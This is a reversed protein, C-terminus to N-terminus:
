FTENVKRRREQHNNYVKERMYYILNGLPSSVEQINKYENKDTIDGPSRGYSEFITKNGTDDKIYHRIDDKPKLNELENVKLGTYMGNCINKSVIDMESIFRDVYEKGIIITSEITGVGISRIGENYLHDIGKSLLAINYPHTVIHVNVRHPGLEKMITKLNKIVIDHTNTGDKLVRLQNMFKTGDMSAAYRINSNEKLFDLIEQNLITGNTTIVFEDITIDEKTKLYEVTKKIHDFALLPEGGLFELKFTKNYKCINDIVSKIEDWTYISIKDQEYCYLCSSNCQKTVHIVYTEM